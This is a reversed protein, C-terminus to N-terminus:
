FLGVPWKNLAWFWASKCVKKTFICCLSLFFIITFIAIAINVSYSTIESLHQESFYVGGMAFIFIPLSCLCSFLIAFPFTFYVAVLPPMYIKYKKSFQMILCAIFVLIFLPAYIIVASFALFTAPM